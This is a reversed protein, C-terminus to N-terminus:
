HGVFGEDPSPYTTETLASDSNDDEKSPIAAPPHSEHLGQATSTQSPDSGRRSREIRAIVGDMALKVGDPSVGRKLFLLLMAGRCREM